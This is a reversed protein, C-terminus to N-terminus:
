SKSWVFGAGEEKAGVKGAGQGLVALRSDRKGEGDSRRNRM